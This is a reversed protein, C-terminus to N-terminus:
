PQPTPRPFGHSGSLFIGGRLPARGCSTNGGPDEKATKQQGSGVTGKADATCRFPHGPLFCLSAYVRQLRAANWLSRVLRLNGLTVQSVM